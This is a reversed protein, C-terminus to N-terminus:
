AGESGYVGRWDTFGAVFRKTAKFKANETEWDNDTGFEMGRRQYSRLGKPCDTVLFWADTDTLYHGTAVKPISGMMRLANPDNDATAVRGQSMLIREVEFQLDIPINLQKIRCAIKLGRDDVYKGIDIVAQEFAAESVDVYTSPRNSMVAGGSFSPHANSVLAVSDGGPYSSSFANNLVDAHVIEETQILSRSLARASDLGLNYQGDEYQERTVMFGLAYVVPTYRTVYTQKASDYTIPEGEGKVQALGFGSIAVDESYAKKDNFVEFGLSKWELPHDKYSTGFSTNIGPWLFKAFSNRNIVSM